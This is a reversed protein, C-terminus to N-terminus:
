LAGLLLFEARAFLAVGAAVGAPWGRRRLAVGATRAALVRSRLVLAVLV